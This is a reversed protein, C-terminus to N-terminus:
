GEMKFKRRYVQGRYCPVVTEARDFSKEDRESRGPVGTGGRKLPPTADAVSLDKRALARFTSGESRNM